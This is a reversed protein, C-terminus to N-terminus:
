QLLYLSCNLVSAAVLYKIVVCMSSAFEYVNLFLLIIKTDVHIDYSKHSHTVFVASIFEFNVGYILM